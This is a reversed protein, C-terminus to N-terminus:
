TAGLPVRLDQFPYFYRGGGTPGSYGRSAVWAPISEYYEETENAFSAVADGIQEKARAQYYDAMQLEGTRHPAMMAALFFLTANYRGVEWSEIVEDDKTYILVANAVDTDIWRRGTFAFKQWGPFHIPALLDGPAEYRYRYGVEPGGTAPLLPNTSETSLYLSTVGRASQWPAAALVSKRAMPYWTRCLAASPHQEDPHTIDANDKVLVLAQRFLELLNYM